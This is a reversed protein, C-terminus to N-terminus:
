LDLKIPVIDRGRTKSLKVIYDKHRDQLQNVIPPRDAMNKKWDGDMIPILKKTLKKPNLCYVYSQVKSYNDTLVELEQRQFLAKDPRSMDVGLLEDLIPWFSEPARLELLKGEVLQSQNQVDMIPYGCSLRYAQGKLFARKESMILGAIKPFHVQDKEFSGYAFFNHNM